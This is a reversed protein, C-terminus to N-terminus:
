KFIIPLYYLCKNACVTNSAIGSPGEDVKILIDPASTNHQSRTKRHFFWWPGLKSNWATTWNSTQGIIFPDDGSMTKVHDVDANGDSVYMSRFVAFPKTITDYNTWVDAVARDHDVLFRINASEGNRYIIKLSMMEADAGIIIIEEIGIHPRIDPPIYDTTAPGIIVSSGYCVRDRGEPPHPIMRMNGDEYFVLFEPWSDTQAIRRFWVLRHGIIKKGDNQVTRL